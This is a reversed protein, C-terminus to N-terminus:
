PSDEAKIIVGLEKLENPNIPPLDHLHQNLFRAVVNLKEKPIHIGRPRNPSNLYESQWRDYNMPRPMDTCLVMPKEAKDGLVKKTLEELEKKIMPNLKLPNLWSPEPEPHWVGGRRDHVEEFFDDLNGIADKIAKAFDEGGKRYAKRYYEDVTDLITDTTAGDNTIVEKVVKMTLDGPMMYEPKHFGHNIPLNEPHWEWRAVPYYDDAYDTGILLILGFDPNYIEMGIDDHREYYKM